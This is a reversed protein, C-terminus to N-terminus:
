RLFAPSPITEGWLMKFAPKALKKDAPLNLWIQFFDSTNGKDDNLLPFMESHQLGSGALMWQVDGKGYRAAAGNSDAHDIFGKLVFTITEFGRHPHMPFGPIKTGHYMRWGDKVTFDNGLNRGHLSADPGLDKNGRPYFDLHHVCFLFPDQTIWPFGLKQIRLITKPM